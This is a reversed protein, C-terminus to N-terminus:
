LVSGAEKRAVLIVFTEALVILSKQIDPLLRKRRVGKPMIKLADKLNAFALISGSKIEPADKPDFNEASLGESNSLICSEDTLNIVVGPLQSVAFSGSNTKSILGIGAIKELLSEAKSKNTISLVLYGKPFSEGALPGEHISLAVQGGLTEFIDASSIGIANLGDLGSSFEEKQQVFEQLLPMDMRLAVVGIPNSKPITRLFDEEVTKNFIGAFKSHISDAGFYNGSIDIKGDMFDLIGIVEGTPSDIATVGSAPWEVQKSADAWFAADYNKSTLEQFHASSNVLQDEKKIEYLDHLFVKNKTSDMLKGYVGIATKDNVGFVFSASTIWDMELSSSITATSDLGKVFAFFEEKNTIPVIFYYKDSSQNEVLQFMILQKLYDIGTKEPLTQKKSDPHTGISGFLNKISLANLAMGKFDILIVAKANKPIRKVDNSSSCSYFLILLYPIVRPLLTFLNM